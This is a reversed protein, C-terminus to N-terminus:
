KDGVYRLKSGSKLTSEQDFLVNTQSEDENFVIATRERDFVLREDNDASILLLKSNNIFYEGSEEQATASFSPSFTTYTGDDHLILSPLVTEQSELEYKGMMLNVSSNNTEKACGFLMMSLLLGCVLIRINRKM